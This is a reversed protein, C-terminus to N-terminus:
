WWRRNSGQNAGRFWTQRETLEACGICTRAQPLAQRRAAPIEGGCEICDGNGNARQPTRCRAIAQALQTEIQQTAMDAIDMKFVEYNFLHNSFL